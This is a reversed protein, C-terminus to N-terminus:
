ESDVFAVMAPINDTITRLEEENHRLKHRSDLLRQYPGRISDAVITRYVMWFGLVKYVHGVVLALDSLRTYMTLVVEGIAMLVAACLLSPVDFPQPAKLRRAFLVSAALFLGILLGEGARKALTLSEGDRVLTPLSDPAAFVWGVVILVYAAVGAPVWRVSRVVWRPDHELRWPLAAVCLIALAILLRSAMFLAVTRTSTNSGILDPLGPFSLAHAADLLLAGVCASGLLRVSRPVELERANWAVAAIAACVGMSGLEVLTHWQTFSLGAWVEPLRVPWAWLALMPLTALALLAAQRHHGRLASM